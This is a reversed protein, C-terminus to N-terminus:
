REHRGEWFYKRGRDYTALPRGDKGDYGCGGDAVPALLWDLVQKYSLGSRVGAIVEDREPISDIFSGSGGTGAGNAGKFDSLKGM